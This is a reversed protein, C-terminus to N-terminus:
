VAPATMQLTKFEGGQPDVVVGWLGFTLENDRTNVRGGSKEAAEIADTQNTVSFWPLWHPPIIDRLEEDLGYAGRLALGAENRLINIHYEMREVTDGPFLALQFAIQEEANHNTPDVLVLHGPTTSQPIFQGAPLQAIGFRVGFPDILEAAQGPVGLVRNPVDVRAGAATARAITAEFDDTGLFCFWGIQDDAFDPNVVVEAVRKGEGTSFSITPGENLSWGLVNKYFTDLGDLSRVQLVPWVTSGVPYDVASM